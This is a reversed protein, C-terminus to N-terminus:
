SFFLVSVAVTLLSAVFSSIFNVADNNIVPFGSIVKNVNGNIVRKETIKGSEECQYKVQVTAGLVSDIVSGAFGGVACLIFQLLLHESNGYIIFYGAIFVVAIFVSGLLSAVTGALTIGGSLGKCIPKWNIISVPTKKSLVGLESGWTDANSSALSTAFALIFLHNGTLYFLMAFILSVYGNAIVQSYDRAGSKEHLEALEKEQDRNFRGIMNSSIFFAVLISLFYLGGFISLFIGLLLASYLGSTTLSKKRYAFVAIGSCILTGIIIQNM